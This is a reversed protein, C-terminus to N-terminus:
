PAALDRNIALQLEEYAHQVAARATQMAEGAGAVGPGPGSQERVARYTGVALGFDRSAILLAMLADGVEPSGFAGVEVHMRDWTESDVPEPAEPQGEFVLMPETLAARKVTTLAYRLATMYAAKRDDYARNALALRREHEHAERALETGADRDQRHTWANFVYGAIAVTPTAVVGIVAVIATTDM